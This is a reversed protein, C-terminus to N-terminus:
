SRTYENSIYINTHPCYKGAVSLYIKGSSDVVVRELDSLNSSTAVAAVTSYSGSGGGLM